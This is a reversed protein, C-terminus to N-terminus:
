NNRFHNLKEHESSPCKGTIKVFNRYFTTFDNYGVLGAVQSITMDTKQLLTQAQRIRTEALYQKFSKGTQITFLRSFSSRSIGFRNCLDSLSFCEYYHRDIYNVALSVASKATTNTSSVSGLEVTNAYAQALIYLSSTILSPAASLSPPVGKKQENMLCKLLSHLTEKCDENLTVSARLVIQNREKLSTLFSYIHSRSFGAHFLNEDFALSYAVTKPGNEPFDIRHEIQPPIIAADGPNMIITQGLLTHTLTGERVYLMQYYSHTHFSHQFVSKSRVCLCYPQDKSVNFYDIAINKM